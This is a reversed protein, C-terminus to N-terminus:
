RLAVVRASSVAYGGHQSEVRSTHKGAAYAISVACIAFVLVIGVAVARVCDRLTLRHLSIM